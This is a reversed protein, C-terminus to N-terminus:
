MGADKRNDLLYVIHIQKNEFRYVISTQPSVVAKRLNSTIGSLPFIEPFIRIVEIYRGLKKRFASVERKTWNIELYDLIDELNSISEESWSVPIESAM